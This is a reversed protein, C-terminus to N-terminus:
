ENNAESAEAREMMAEFRVRAEEMTVGDRKHIHYIWPEVTPESAGPLSALATDLTAKAETYALAAADVAASAQQVAALQAPYLEAWMQSRLTFFDPKM